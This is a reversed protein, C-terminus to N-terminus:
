NKAKMSKTRKRMNSAIGSFDGRLLGAWFYPHWSFLFHFIRRLPIPMTIEPNRPGGAGRFAHWVGDLCAEMADPLSKERLAGGYPIIPALYRPIHFVRKMGKLTDMWLFYINRSRLFVQFPADNNGTSRSNKHFVRAEPVVIARYGARAVRMCYDEDEHYAFYKDNLFGVREVVERRILLATGWLSVNVGNSPYPDGAKLKVIRNREWDIYSGCFQVEGPPDQFYIVPSAIGVDPSNGITQVMKRLADREVVTDNNLLWVYDTGMELAKVIGLNNGGTFGLNRKSELLTISPYRQRIVSTSDDTSGNDVVVIRMDPYDLNRVSEICELTDGVGNWNLIIVTVPPAPNTETM